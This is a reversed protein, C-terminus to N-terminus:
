KREHLLFSLRGFFWTQQGKRFSDREIWYDLSTFWTSNKSIWCAFLKLKMWLMNKNVGFTSKLRLIQKIVRWQWAISHEEVHKWLVLPIKECKTQVCENQTRRCNYCKSIISSILLKQVKRDKLSRCYFQAYICHVIFWRINYGYMGIDIGNLECLTYVTYIFCEILVIFSSPHFM